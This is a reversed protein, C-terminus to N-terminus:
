VHIYIGERGGGETEKRDAREVLTVSERTGAKHTKGEVNETMEGKSMIRYTPRLHFYVIGFHAKM